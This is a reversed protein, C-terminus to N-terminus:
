RRTEERQQWLPKMKELYDDVLRRADVSGFGRILPFLRKCDALDLQKVKRICALENLWHPFTNERATVEEKEILKTYILARAALLRGRHTEKLDPHFIFTLTLQDGPGFLLGTEGLSKLAEHAIFVPKVNVPAPAAQRLRHWMSLHISGAEVFVSRHGTIREAVAEARLADRLRFRAADCRAFRIVAELTAEFSGNMVVQYYDLLAGTAEREAKYVRHRDSDPVLDAPAHGDAFFLHIALLHELFPEVQLLPKGEGHLERM